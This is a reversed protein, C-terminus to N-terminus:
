EHDDRRHDNDPDYGFLAAILDILPACFRLLFVVTTLDILDRFTIQSQVKRITKDSLGAPPSSEDERLMGLLEEVVEEDRRQDNTM